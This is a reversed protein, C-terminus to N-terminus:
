VTYQKIVTQRQQACFGSQTHPHQHDNAACCDDKEEEEHESEDVVSASFYLEAM